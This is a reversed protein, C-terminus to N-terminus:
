LKLGTVQEILGPIRGSTSILGQHVLELTEVAVDTSTAKLEPGTWKVPYAGGFDWRWKKKGASNHLLVSVNKRVIKGQVADQQWNWLEDIDMLGHKLVLNSPYKAPGALRHIYDNLGGERYDQIEIEVQLGNVDTFGGVRIGDIEVKFRFALYPDKRSGLM